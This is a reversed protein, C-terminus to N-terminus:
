HPQRPSADVRPAPRGRVGALRFPNHNSHDKVAPSHAAIPVGHFAEWPRLPRAPPRREPAAGRAQKQGSHNETRSLGRVTIKAREQTLAREAGGEPDGGQCGSVGIPKAAYPRFVCGAAVLRMDALPAYLMM